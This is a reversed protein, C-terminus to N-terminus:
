VVVDFEYLYICIKFYEMDIKIYKIFFEKYIDVLERMLVIMLNFVSM